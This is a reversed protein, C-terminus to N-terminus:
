ARRLGELMRRLADGVRGFFVIADTPSEVPLGNLVLVDRDPMRTAVFFGDCARLREIALAQLQDFTAERGGPEPFSRIQPPEVEIVEDNEDM